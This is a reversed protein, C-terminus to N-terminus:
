MILVSLIYGENPIVRACAMIKHGAKTCYIYIYISCTDSGVVHLAMIIMEIISSFNFEIDTTECKPIYRLFRLIYYFM